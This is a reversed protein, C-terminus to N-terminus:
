FRLCRGGFFGRTVMVPVVPHRRTVGGKGFRHYVEVCAPPKEDDVQGASSFLEKGRARIFLTDEKGKRGATEKREQCEGGKKTGARERERKNEVDVSREPASGPISEKGEVVLLWM